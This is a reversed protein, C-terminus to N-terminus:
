YFGPIQPHPTIEESWLQFAHPDSNQSLFLQETSLPPLNKFPIKLTVRDGQNIMGTSKLIPNNKWM